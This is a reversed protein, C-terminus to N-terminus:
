KKKCQYHMYMKLLCEKSCNLQSMRQMTVLLNLDKQQPDNQGSNETVKVRFQSGWFIFFIVSTVTSADVALTVHLCFSVISASMHCLHSCPFVCCKLMFKPNRGKGFEGKEHTNQDYVEIFDLPERCFESVLASGNGLGRGCGIKGLRTLSWTGCVYLRQFAWWMEPGHEYEAAHAKWSHDLITKGVLRRAEDYVTSEWLETHKWVTHKLLDIAVSHPIYHFIQSRKKYSMRVGCGNRKLSQQIGALWFPCFLCSKSSKIIVDASAIKQITIKQADTGKMRWITVNQISLKLLFCSIVITFHRCLKCSAKWSFLLQCQSMLLSGCLWLLPFPVAQFSLRTTHTVGTEM